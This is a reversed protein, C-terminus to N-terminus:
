QRRLIPILDAATLDRLELGAVRDSGLHTPMNSLPSLPIREAVRNNSEPGIALGIWGDELVLQTIMLGEYTKDNPDDLRVLPLHREPPLM